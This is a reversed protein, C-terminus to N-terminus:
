TALYVRWCRCASAASRHAGDLAMPSDGQGGVTDVVYLTFTQAGRRHAAKNQLLRRGRTCLHLPPYRPDWVAGEGHGLRPLVRLGSCCVGQLYSNLLSLMALMSEASDSVQKLAHLGLGRVLLCQSCWLVPCIVGEPVCRSNQRGHNEVRRTHQPHLRDM